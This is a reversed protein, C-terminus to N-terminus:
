NDGEIVAAASALEARNKLASQAKAALYALLPKINLVIHWIAFIVFLFGGITHLTGWQDKTLGWDVLAAVVAEKKPTYAPIYADQVSGYDNYVFKVKGFDIKVKTLLFRVTQILRM